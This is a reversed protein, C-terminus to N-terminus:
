GTKSWRLEFNKRLEKKNINKLDCLYKNFDEAIRDLFKHPNIKIDNSVIQIPVEFEGSITVRKKTM